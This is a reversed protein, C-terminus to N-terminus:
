EQERNTGVWGSITYAPYTEAIVGRQAQDWVLGSLQADDDIVDLVADLAADLDDDATAPDTKSSMVVIEVDHRRAGAAAPSPAVTTRYVSVYTKGPEAADPRWWYGRVIYGAPVPPEENLAAALVDAITQQVSV